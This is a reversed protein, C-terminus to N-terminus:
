PDAGFSGSLPCASMSSVWLLTVKIAAALMRECCEKLAPRVLIQMRGQPPGESIRQAGFRATMPGVGSCNSSRDSQLVYLQLPASGRPGRSRSPGDFERFSYPQQAPLM